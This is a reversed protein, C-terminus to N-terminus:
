TGIAERPKSKGRGAPKSDTTEQPRQALVADVYDQKGNLRAQDQLTVRTFEPLKRIESISMVKLDSESYLSCIDVPIAPQQGEDPDYNAVITYHLGTYKAGSKPDPDYDKLNLFVEAGDAKRTVRVKDLRAATPLTGLNVEIKLEQSVTTSRTIAQTASM